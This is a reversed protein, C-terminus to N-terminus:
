QGVILFGLGMTTSRVTGDPFAGMHQVDWAFCFAVSKDFLSVIGTCVCVCLSVQPTQKRLQRWNSLEVCKLEKEIMARM